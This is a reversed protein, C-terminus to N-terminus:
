EPRVLWEGSAPGHLAPEAQEALSLYYQLHRERLLEEENAQSLKESAYQRIIEHLRYRTAQGDVKQVVILSKAALADLLLLAQDDCVKQAAELTWGGVFM